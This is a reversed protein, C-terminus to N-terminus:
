KVRHTYIYQRVFDNNKAFIFILVGSKCFMPSGYLLSLNTSLWKGYTWSSSSPVWWQVPFSVFSTGPNKLGRLPKGGREIGWYEPILLSCLVGSLDSVARLFGGTLHLMVPTGLLKGSNKTRLSHLGVQRKNSSRPMRRQQQKLGQTMLRQEAEHVCTLWQRFEAWVKPHIHCGGKLSIWM